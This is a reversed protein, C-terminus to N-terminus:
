KEHAFLQQWKKYEQVYVKKFVDNISAAWHNRFGFGGARGSLRQTILVRKEEANFLTVWMSAQEKMKDMSEMIIIIALGKVDGTEFNNVMSIIKATDLHNYDEFNYSILKALDIVSNRKQVMELNPTVTSKYFTKNLNYKEPENLILLNIKTFLQIMEYNDVTGPDGLYRAASFDIGMWMVPTASQFIDANSQAIVSKNLTLGITTVILANILFHKM